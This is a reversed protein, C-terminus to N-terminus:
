IKLELHQKEAIPKIENYLYEVYEAFQPWKRLKRVGIIYSKSKEWLRIILGSMLDDVLYPDILKRKVLVGVGEFYTLVMLWSSYAEPNTNPGYKESFDDFDTWDWINTIDSFQRMFDKEQFRSYIPMFLQAQRTRNQNNVTMIYYTLGAIVGFIAVLDRVVQLMVLDIM